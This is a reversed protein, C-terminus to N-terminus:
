ASAASLIGVKDTIAHLLNEVADMRAEISHDGAAAQVDVSIKEAIADLSHEMSAVIEDLCRDNEVVAVAVSMEVGFKSALVHLIRDMSAIRQTISRQSAAAQQWKRAGGKKHLLLM